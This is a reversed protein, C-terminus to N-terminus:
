ILGPLEGLSEIRATEGSWEGHRDLLVAALGARSAGAVDKSPSDGVHM